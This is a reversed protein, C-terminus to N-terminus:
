MQALVKKESRTAIVEVENLQKFRSSDDQALLPSGIIMAAVVFISKQMSLIKQSQKRFFSSFTFASIAKVNGHKEGSLQSHIFKTSAPRRAQKGSFM